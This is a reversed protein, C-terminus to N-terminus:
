TRQSFSCCFYRIVSSVITMQVPGLNNVASPGLTQIFGDLFAPVTLCLLWGDLSTSLPAPSEAGWDTLCGSVHL